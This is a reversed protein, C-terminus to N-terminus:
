EGSKSRYVRHEGSRIRLLAAICADLVGSLRATNQVDAQAVCRPAVRVDGERWALLITPVVHCRVVNDAEREFLNKSVLTWILLAYM